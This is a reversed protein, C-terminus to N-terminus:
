VVSKRDRSVHLSPTTKTITVLDALIPDLPIHNNFLQSSGSGTSNDLTFHLYYTTSEGAQPATPEDQAECFGAPPPAVADGPCAPVSYPATAPGSTPPILVSIGTGFGAGPPTVALLYAGGPPCAPDGFTLDFKYFGSALTVQNQQAPDLFCSGPLPSGSGAALMTVTA